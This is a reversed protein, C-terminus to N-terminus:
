SEGGEPLDITEVKAEGTHLAAPKKSARKKEPPAAVENIEIDKRHIAAEIRPRGVFELRAKWHESPMSHVGVGYGTMRTRRTTAPWEKEHRNIRIILEM